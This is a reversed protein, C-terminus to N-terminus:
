AYHPDTTGKGAIDWIYTPFTLIKKLSYHLCAFSLGRRWNIMSDLYLQLFTFKIMRCFMKGPTRINWLIIEWHWLKLPICVYYAYYSFSHMIHMIHIINLKICMYYAHYTCYEIKHVYLIRHLSARLKFGGTLEVKETSEWGTSADLLM